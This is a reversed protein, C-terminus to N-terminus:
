NAQPEVEPADWISGSACRRGKARSRPWRVFKLLAQPDAFLM